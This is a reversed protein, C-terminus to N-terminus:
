AQRRRLSAFLGLVGIGLLGLTTPEPATAVVASGATIDRRGDPGQEFSDFTGILIPAGTATLGGSFTVQLINLLDATEVVIIAPLSTSTSITTAPTYHFGIGSGPSTTIDYDLLTTFTDDTTFTGSLTGGDSFTVGSFTYIISASAQGAALFLVFGVCSLFRKMNFELRFTELIQAKRCRDFEAHDSVQLQDFPSAVLPNRYVVFIGCCRLM